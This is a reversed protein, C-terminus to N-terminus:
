IRSAPQLPRRTASAQMNAPPKPQVSDVGAAGASSPTAAALLGAGTHRGSAFGLGFCLGCLMLLGVFIFILMTPTLTVETDRQAPPEPYRSDFEGRM